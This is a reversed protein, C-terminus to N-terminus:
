DKRRKDGEGRTRKAYRPKQADLAIAAGGTTTATSVDRESLASSRWLTAPATPSTM